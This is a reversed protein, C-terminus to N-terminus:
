ATYLPTNQGADDRNARKKDRIQDEAKQQAFQHLGSQRCHLQEGEM